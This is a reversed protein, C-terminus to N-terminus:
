RREERRPLDSAEPPFLGEFRIERKLFTDTVAHGTAVDTLRVTWPGVPENLAPTFEGAARGDRAPVVETYHDLREGAPTLVELRFVRDRGAGADDASALYEVRGGREYLRLSVGTMLSDLCALITPREPCLEVTPRSTQSLFTGDMVDYVFAARAGLDVVARTRGTLAPDWVAVIEMAGLRYRRRLADCDERGGSWVRAGRGIGALELLNAVLRTEDESSGRSGLEINLYAARGAGVQQLLLAPTPGAMARPYATVARLASEAPVLRSVEVGDLFAPARDQNVQVM